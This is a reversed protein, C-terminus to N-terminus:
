KKIAKRRRRRRTGIGALGTGLLLLTAPEPTPTAVTIRSQASDTVFLTNNADHYIAEGRFFIFAGNPATAGTTISFANPVTITANAALTFPATAGPTASCGTCNASGGVGAVGISNINLASGTTNTLTASFFTVSGGPPVTLLGSPNITITLPDAQAIVPLALLVAFVALPLAYKRFM